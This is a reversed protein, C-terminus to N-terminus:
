SCSFRVRCGSFVARSSIQPRHGRSPSKAMNSTTARVINRQAFDNMAAIREMTQEYEKELRTIREERLQKYKTYNGKYSVVTKNEIEWIKTVM